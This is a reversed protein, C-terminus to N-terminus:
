QKQQPTGMQATWGGYAEANAPKFKEKAADLSDVAAEYAPDNADWADGLLVQTSSLDKFYVADYKGSNDGETHKIIICGATDTINYVYEIEANTYGYDGPHSITSKSGGTGLTITYTDTWANAGEGGSATWTGALSPNLVHTDNFKQQPTGMQATWGGYAEANAPKFREKAADLTSVASPITYDAVTYASGLLTQTSTLGKFYVADYKGDNSGGTYQIIICGDTNTINYVYEISGTVTTPAGGGYSSIYTVSANTIVYDDTWANAGEGGSATWTGALSPNLVHTDTFKQHNTIYQATGGGYTAANALKFREKAEDLTSVASSTNDEVTYASGLVVKNATLQQFYVANYKDILDTIPNVTFKIIICGSAEDFNYIYEITGVSTGSGSSIYTVTANTIVYDDTWANAGTGGSDKWTGLLGVLLSDSGSNQPIVVSDDKEAKNLEGAKNNDIPTSAGAKIFGTYDQVTFEADLVLGSEDKTISIGTTSDGIFYLDDKYTYTQASVVKGSSDIVVIKTDTIAVTLLEPSSDKQAKVPWSTNILPSEPDSGPDNGGCSVFTFLAALVLLVAMAPFIVRKEFGKKLMSREKPDLYPPLAFRNVPLNSDKECLENRSVQFFNSPGM